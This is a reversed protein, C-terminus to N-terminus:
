RSLGGFRGHQALLMVLVAAARRPSAQHGIEARRGFAAPAPAACYEIPSDLVRRVDVTGGRYRGTTTAGAMLLTALLLWAPTWTQLVNGRM